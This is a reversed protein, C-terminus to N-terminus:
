EQEIDLEIVSEPDGTGQVTIFRDTTTAGTVPETITPEGLEQGILAVEASFFSTDNGVDDFFNVLVSKTGNGESLTWPITESYPLMVGQLLDQQDENLVEVTSAGAANLTLTVQRDDTTLEGENIIIPVAGVFPPTQDLTITATHVDSETLAADRFKVWVTKPGDGFAPGVAEDLLVWSKASVYVEWVAGAFDATNALLMQTADKASLILDVIPSNTAEAGNDILIARLNGPAPVTLVM